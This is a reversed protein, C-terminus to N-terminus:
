IIKSAKEQVRRLLKTLALVKNPTGTRRRSNQVSQGKAENAEKRQDVDINGNVTM